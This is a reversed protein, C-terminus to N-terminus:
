PQQDGNQRNHNAILNQRAQKLAHRERLGIRRREGFETRTQRRQDTRQKAAQVQARVRAEALQRLQAALEPDLPQEAM